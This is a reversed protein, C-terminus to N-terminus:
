DSFIWHRGGFGSTSIAMRGLEDWNVIIDKLQVRFTALISRKSCALLTVTGTMDFLVRGGTRPAVRLVTSLDAQAVAGLALGLAASEDETIDCFDHCFGSGEPDICVTCDPHPSDAGGSETLPSVRHTYQSCFSYYGCAQATALRPLSVLAAVTVLCSVLIARRM